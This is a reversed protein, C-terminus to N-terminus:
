LHCTYQLFIVCSHQKSSQTNRCFQKNCRMLLQIIPNNRHDRWSLQAIFDSSQANCRVWSRSSTWNAIKVKSVFTGEVLFWQIVDPPAKCVERWLYAFIASSSILKRLEQVLKCQLQMRWLLIAMRMLTNGISDSSSVSFKVHCTNQKNRDTTSATDHTRNFSVSRHLDM